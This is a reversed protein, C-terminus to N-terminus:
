SGKDEREPGCTKMVIQLQDWLILPINWLCVFNGQIVTHKM